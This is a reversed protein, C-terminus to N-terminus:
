TSEPCLLLLKVDLGGGRLPLTSIWQWAPTELLYKKEKVIKKIDKTLLIRIIIIIIISIYNNNNKKSKMLAAIVM